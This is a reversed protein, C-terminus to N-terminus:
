KALKSGLSWCHGTVAVCRPCGTLLHRVVARRGAADLIGRMFDELQAPAPHSSPEAPPIALREALHKSSLSSHESPDQRM